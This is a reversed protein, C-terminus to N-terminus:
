RPADSAAAAALARALRERAAAFGPAEGPLRRRLQEETVVGHRAVFEAMLQRATEREGMHWLAAVHVPPWRLGPNVLAADRGWEHALSLRGAGFHAM